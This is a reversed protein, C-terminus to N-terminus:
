LTNFQTGTDSSLLDFVPVEEGDADLDVGDPPPVDGNEGDM